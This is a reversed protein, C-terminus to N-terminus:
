KIDIDAEEMASIFPQKVKQYADEIHPQPSAWGVGNHKNTILHGHELLHTLQWDTENWVTYSSDQRGKREKVTWGQAYKGRHGRPTNPSTRLISSCRDAYEELIPQYRISAKLGKFNKLNTDSM